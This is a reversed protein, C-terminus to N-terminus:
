RGPCSRSSSARASRIGASLGPQCPDNRPWAPRRRAARGPVGPQRAAALGGGAHGPKRGSRTTRRRDALAFPADREVQGSRVAVASGAARGPCNTASRRAATSPAVASQGCSNATRAARTARRVPDADLALRVAGTLLEDVRVHAGAVIQVHRRRASAEDQSGAVCRDQQQGGSRPSGPAPSAARAPRCGTRAALDPPQVAGAVAGLLREGGLDPAQQGTQGVGPPVDAVAASRRGVPQARSRRAPRSVAVDEGGQGERAVRSAYM